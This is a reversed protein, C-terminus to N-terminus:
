CATPASSWCGGCSDSRGRCRNRPTPSSPSKGAQDLVSEAGAALEAYFPNTFDSVVIGITQTRATRLNAAHRNYVYGCAHMSERVRERTGEAVLPSSACSSRCRRGPFGPWARWM